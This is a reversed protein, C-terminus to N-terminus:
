QPQLMDESAAKSDSRMAAAIYDAWREGLHERQLSTYPLPRLARLAEAPEPLGLAKPLAEISTFCISEIWSRLRVQISQWNCQFAEVLKQPSTFGLMHILMHIHLSGRMQPEVAGYAAFVDGLVGTNGTAAVGDSNLKAPDITCGLLHEFFFRIHLDFAKVAAVPDKAVISSLNTTRLLEELHLDSTPLKM